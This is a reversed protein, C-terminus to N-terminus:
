QYLFSQRHCCYSDLLVTLGGHRIVAPPDTVESDRRAVTRGNSRHDMPSVSSSMIYESYCGLLGVLIGDCGARLRSRARQQTM